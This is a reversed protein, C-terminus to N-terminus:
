KQWRFVLEAPGGDEGILKQPQAARDLAQDVLYGFAHTSPDRAWFEYVSEPDNLAALAAEASEVKKFKGSKERLVFHQIGKAAAIQALAMPALEAVVLTRLHERALEKTLTKQCVAGKPRGAGPRKGGNPGRPPHLKKM